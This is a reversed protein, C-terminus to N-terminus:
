NETMSITQYCVGDILIADSGLGACAALFLDLPLGVGPDDERHRRVLPKQPGAHFKVGGLVTSYGGGGWAANGFVSLGSNALQWEAGIAGTLGVGQLHRLGADFRLNEHLYFAATANLALGTFSGTQWAVLGELSFQGLYMEGEVGVKNVTAGFGSWHVHSVYAGVLGRSPDRAFLHGAVGWFGDGGASGALGDIQLGWQQHVPISLAGVAGWGSEGDISGAFAGAKANLASVAPGALTPVFVPALPDAALAPVAAAITFAAVSAPLATRPM